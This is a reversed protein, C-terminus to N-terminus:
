SDERPSLPEVPMVSIHDRWRLDVYRLPGAVRAIERRLELYDAVNREIREPDLLIAPGPDVTRVTIRDPRALDLESVEPLWDAASSELRQVLTVGRRLAAILVEGERDDLGTLVPLDDAVDPGSPRIVHGTRDVVHAVGDILAV